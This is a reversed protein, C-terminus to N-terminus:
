LRRRRGISANQPVASIPRAALSAASRQGKVASRQGKVASRQGIFGARRRSFGASTQQPMRLLKM